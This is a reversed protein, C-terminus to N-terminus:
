ANPRKGHNAGNKKRGRRKRGRKAMITGGQLRRCGAHWVGPRAGMGVVVLQGLGAAVLVDGPSVVQPRVPLPVAIVDGAGHLRTRRDALEHRPDRGSAIDQTSVGARAAAAPSVPMAGNLGVVVANGILGIMVLGTGRIGRNRTLFVGALLVSVVLGVPYATGGLLAGALQAVFAAVVLGGGRLPLRGLRDLRGGFAWGLGLAALLVCIVLLM